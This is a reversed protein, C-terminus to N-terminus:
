RNSGRRIQSLDATQTNGAATAYSATDEPADDDGFLMAIGNAALGEGTESKFALDVVTSLASVPGMAVAGVMQAAGNIQDGTLARYAMNVLPIHQLPNIIDLFDDFGFKGDEGLFLKVSEPNEVIRWKANMGQFWEREDKSPQRPLEWVGDRGLHAGPVPAQPADPDDTAPPLAAQQAAEAPTAAADAEPAPAAEAPMADAPTLAALPADPLPTDPLPTDPMAYQLAAAKEVTPGPAAAAELGSVDLGLAALQAPTLTPISPAGQPAPPVMLPSKGAGPHQIPGGLNAAELRQRFTMQDISGPRLVGGPIAGLDFAQSAKPAAAPPKTASGPPRLYAPPPAYPEARGAALQIPMQAM